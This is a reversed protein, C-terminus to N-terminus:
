DNQRPSGARLAPRLPRKGPRGAGWRRRQACGSGQTAKAAERAVKRVRRAEARAARRKVVVKIAAEMSGYSGKPPKLGRSSVRAWRGSPRQIVWRDPLTRADVKPSSPHEYSVRPLHTPPELSGQSGACHGGTPRRPATPRESPGLWM